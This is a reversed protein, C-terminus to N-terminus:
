HINLLNETQKLTRSADQLLINKMDKDNLACKQFIVSIKFLIVLSDVPEFCLLLIVVPAHLVNLAPFNFFM